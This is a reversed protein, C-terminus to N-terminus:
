RMGKKAEVHVARIHYVCICAHLVGACMFYYYICLDLFCFWVLLTFPEQPIVDDTEWMCSCVCTYECVLVLVCVHARVLVHVHRFM